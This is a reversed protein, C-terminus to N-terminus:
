QPFLLPVYGERRGRRGEGEMGGERGEMGGEGERKRERRGEGRGGNKGGDERGRGFIVTSFKMTTQLAIDSNGLSILGTFVLSSTLM